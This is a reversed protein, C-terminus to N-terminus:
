IRFFVLVIIIGDSLTPHFTSLGLLNDCAANNELPIEYMGGGKGPLVFGM